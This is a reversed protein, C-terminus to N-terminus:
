QNALFFAHAFGPSCESRLDSRNEGPPILHMKSGLFPEVIIKEPINFKGWLCTKKSYFDGYEYPQYYMVPNGLYNKLRGVPNELVWFVPNSLAIIRLCHIIPTLGEIIASDGKNKWWRAGSGSFHTCPPNAIVGYVNDPPNYNEVGIEKGILRVDYGAETYPRSDSGSGACLHLIIKELNKMNILCKLSLTWLKQSGTM